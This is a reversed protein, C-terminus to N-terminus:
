FILCHYERRQMKLFFGPNNKKGTIPNTLDTDNGSCSSILIMISLCIIYKIM